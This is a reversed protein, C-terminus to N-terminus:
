KKYCIALSPSLSSIFPNQFGLNYNWFIKSNFIRNLNYNSMKLQTESEVQFWIMIELM